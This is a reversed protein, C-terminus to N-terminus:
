EGQQGQGGGAGFVNNIFSQMRAGQTAANARFESPTTCAFRLVSRVSMLLRIMQQNLSPHGEFERVAWDYAIRVARVSRITRYQQWVSTAGVLVDYEPVDAAPVQRDITSLVDPEICAEVMKGWEHLKVLAGHLRRLTTEETVFPPPGIGTFNM